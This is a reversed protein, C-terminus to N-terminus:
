SEGGLLKTVNAHSSATLLTNLGIWSNLQEAASYGVDPVDFVVYVSMSVQRNESPRFPDATIKSTDLRFMRRNRDGKYQHSAEVRILGDGSQYESQDDGVSIRPLSVASAPPITVSLPDSFSM